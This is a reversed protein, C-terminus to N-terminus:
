KVGELATAMTESDYVAWTQMSKDIRKNLGVLVKGPGCEVLKDVGDSAMKQITEVWRVPQEIQSVLAQKIAEPTTEVQVNYNHIVPIEPVALDIAALRDAMREAAGHMLQCHSPVSVPLVLARKAGAAKAGEVARQVAATSGAIVVQGPSNFNVPSLVEDGANAECLSRVGDDDLGIIAAMAGEGAPVAEQMFRGRDAVLKIADAFELSGACVLATYEGLSHGAMMAPKVGGKDLWVRWTAVGAALMAPQTNTTQNLEEEPGNQVLNWLDFGLADTAESFTEGVLSSTDALASLMGVAQSGQGPFVFALSM